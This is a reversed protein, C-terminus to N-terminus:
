TARGSLRVWIQEAPIHKRIRILMAQSDKGASHSVAFLAGNSKLDEIQEPLSTM